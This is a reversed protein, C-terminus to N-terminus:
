KPKQIRKLMTLVNGSAGLNEYRVEDMLKHILFVGLGGVPRDELAASIDPAPVTEMDFPRGHDRLIITLADDDCACTFEIDGTEACRYAHEIINSCAEDVAMEVACIAEEDLGVERAAQVAFQRLADLQDFRAPFIATRM